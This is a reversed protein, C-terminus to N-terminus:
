ADDGGDPVMEALQAAPVVGRALQRKVAKPSGWFAVPVKNYVYAVIHPLLACNTGDARGIAEKLDNSLVAELFSGPPRGQQVYADISERIHAPCLNANPIM